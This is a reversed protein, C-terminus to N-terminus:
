NGNDLGGLTLVLRPYQSADVDTVKWKAGSFEAYRISYCHNRAYPDAIISIQNSININDNTGNNSPQLTRNHKYVDGYYARVEIEEDYYGPEMEVTRVAFGINGYWKSM